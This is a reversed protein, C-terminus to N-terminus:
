FHAMVPWGRSSFVNSNYVLTYRPLDADFVVPCIRKVLNVVPNPLDHRLTAPKPVTRLNPAPHTQKIRNINIVVNIAQLCLVITSTM